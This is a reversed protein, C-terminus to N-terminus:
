GDGDFRTVIDKGSLPSLGRLAVITDVTAPPDELFSM